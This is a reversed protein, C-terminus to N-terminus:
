GSAAAPQMQDAMLKRLKDISNAHLRSTWSKSLGLKKGAEELTIGKFYYDEIVARNKAPLQEIASRVLERQERDLLAEEAGVSPDEPSKVGEAELSMLYCAALSDGIRGIEALEQEPTGSGAEGESYDAMYANAAAEFKVKDYETKSLWTIKRIWDYIAGRIRYYAFTKFQVGRTPDFSSAAEVLGLVAAAQIDEREAHPPLKKLIDAAIAHAYPRHREILM